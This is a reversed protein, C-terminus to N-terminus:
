TLWNSRLLYALDFHNEVDEPMEEVTAVSALPDAFLDLAMTAQLLSRCRRFTLHESCRLTWRGPDHHACACVSVRM